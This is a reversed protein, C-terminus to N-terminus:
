SEQREHSRLQSEWYSYQPDGARFAFVADPLTHGNNRRSPIRVVIAGDIRRSVECDSIGSLDATAM